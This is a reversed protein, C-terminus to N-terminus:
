LPRLRRGLRITEAVLEFFFEVDAHNDPDIIHEWRERTLHIENGFRDRVTWLKGAPM